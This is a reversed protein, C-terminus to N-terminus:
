GTLVIVLQTFNLSIILGLSILPLRSGWKKGYGVMSVYVCVRFLYNDPVFLLLYLVLFWCLLFYVWSFFDLPVKESVEVGQNM